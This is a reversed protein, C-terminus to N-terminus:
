AAAALAEGADHNRRTAAGRRPEASGRLAGVLPPLVAVQQILDRINGTRTKARINAIQSRVTSIAVGHVEALEAPSLGDCLGALVQEEGPSLKHARSYGQVALAGCVQHKALVLLTASPSAEGAWAPLPVISLRARVAGGNLTLMRRLSRRHASQLADQLADHHAPDRALLSGGEIMLPHGAELELRAAHNCHLVRQEQDVILMGHDIEDLALMMLRGLLASSVRRETSRLPASKPATAWGEIGKLPPVLAAM